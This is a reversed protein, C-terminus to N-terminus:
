DVLQSFLREFDDEIKEVKTLRPETLRLSNARSAVFTALDEFTQIENVSEVIRNQLGKMSIELNNMDSKSMEFLNRVRHHSEAMRIHIAHPDICLLVLGVNVVEARFRDPCYQVLSYFGRAMKESEQGAYGLCSKM